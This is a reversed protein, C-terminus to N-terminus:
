RAQRLRALYREGFREIAGRVAMVSFGHNVGFLLAHDRHAWFHDTAKHTVYRHMIFYLCDDGPQINDAAAQVRRVEGCAPIWSVESLQFARQIAELQTGKGASGVILARRGRVLEWYPWSADPASAHDDHSEDADERADEKQQDRVKKRLASLEPHQLAELHPILLRNIRTDAKLGQALLGLLGRQLDEASEVEDLLAEVRRQATGPDLDDAGDNDSQLEAALDRELATLAWAADHAWSITRPASDRAIGNVSGPRRTQSFHNVASFVPTIDSVVANAKLHRAVASVLTLYHVLLQDDLSWFAKLTQVSADGLLVGALHEHDDQSLLAVLNRARYRLERLLKDHDYAPAVVVAEERPAAGSLKAQLKAKFDETVAVTPRQVQILAPAPRPPEVVTVPEPWPELADLPAPAEPAPPEPAPPEVPAPALPAAPLDRAALMSVFLRPGIQQLSERLRRDAGALDIDTALYRAPDRVLLAGRQLTEWARMAERLLEDVEGSQLTTQALLSLDADENTFM